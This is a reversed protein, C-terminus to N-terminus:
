FYGNRFFFFKLIIKILVEENEFCHPRLIEDPTRFQEEGTNEILNQQINDDVNSSQQEVFNEQVVNM